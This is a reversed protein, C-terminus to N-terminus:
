KNQIFLTALEQRQATYILRTLRIVIAAQLFKGEPIFVHIMEGLLSLSDYHFFIFHLIIM